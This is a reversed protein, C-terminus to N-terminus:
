GETLLPKPSMIALGCYCPFGSLVECDFVHFDFRGLCMFDPDFYVVGSDAMGTHMGLTSTTTDLQPFWLHM